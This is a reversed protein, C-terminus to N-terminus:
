PFRIFAEKTDVLSAKIRKKYIDRVYIRSILLKQDSSVNGLTDNKGCKTNYM